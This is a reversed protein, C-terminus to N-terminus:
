EEMGNCDVIVPLGDGWSVITISLGMGGRSVNGLEEEFDNQFGRREMRVEGIPEVMMAVRIELWRSVLYGEALGWDNLKKVCGVLL